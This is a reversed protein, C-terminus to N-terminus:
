EVGNDGTVAIYYMRIYIYVLFFSFSSSFKRARNPRCAINMISNELHSQDTKKEKARLFRAGM